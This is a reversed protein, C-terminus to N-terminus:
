RMFIIFFMFFLMEKCILFDCCEWVEIVGLKFDLGKFDVFGVFFGVVKCVFLWIMLVDEWVGDVGYEM